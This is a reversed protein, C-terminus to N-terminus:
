LLGSGIDLGKLRLLKQDILPLQSVLRRVAALVEEREVIVDPRTEDPAEYGLVNSPVDDETGPPRSDSSVTSAAALLSAIEDPTTRHGRKRKTTKNVAAAVEELDHTGHPHKSLYKNARYLKRHDSPYFHLTTDSYSEIFNGVMRGIAVSRWVESYEGAYKDVAAILGEVGVSIFDMFSMHSKPTRSWFIRARAIVLPLNMVVLEHRAAEIELGLKRLRSKPHWYTAGLAFRVFHYNIHYKLLRRWSRDRLATSIHPSFVTQRERFYPRATLIDKQVDRIHTIFAEYVRRCNRRRILEVRFEEELAALREVQAKQLAFLATENSEVHGYKAIARQLDGAFQRFHESSDEAM